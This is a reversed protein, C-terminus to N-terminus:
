NTTDKQYAEAKKNLNDLQFIVREDLTTEKLKEKLEKTAEYLMMVGTQVSRNFM